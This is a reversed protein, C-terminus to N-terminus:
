GGRGRGRLSPGRRPRPRGRPRDAVRARRRGAARRGRALRRSGPEVRGSPGRGGGPDRQCLHPGRDRARVLIGVDGAEADHRGGRPRERVRARRRLAAAPSCPRQSKEQGSFFCRRSPIVPPRARSHRKRRGDHAGRRPERLPRHVTRAASVGKRERGRTTEPLVQAHLPAREEPGDGGREGSEQEAEVRDDDGARLLRDLREPAEAGPHVAERHARREVARHEAREEAAPRGIAEPALRRQEPDADEVDDRGEAAGEGAPTPENMAARNMPPRPM